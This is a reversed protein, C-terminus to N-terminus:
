RWAAIEINGYDIAEVARLLPGLDTKKAYRTYSEREGRQHGVLAATHAEPIGASWLKTIVSHRIGHFTQGNDKVGISMLYKAFDKSVQHGYKGKYPRVDEFLKLGHRSEAFKVLGADILAQHVPVIRKANNNKLRKDGRDNVDICWTGGINVIDDGDLQAVESQRMGGFCALLPIWFSSPAEPSRPLNEIIKKIDADSIAQREADDSKEIKLVARKFPHSDVMGNNVAWNFVTAVEILRMNVTKVSLLESAPRATQIIDHIARDRYQTRNVCKPIRQLVDRYRQKDEVTYQDLPKDTVIELFRLLNKEIGKSIERGRLDTIENIYLRILERGTIRQSSQSPIQQVSVVPLDEPIETAPTKAAFVKSWLEKEKERATTPVLAATVDQVLSPAISNGGDILEARFSNIRISEFVSEAAAVYQRCRRLAVSENKTRLSKKLETRNFVPQLDAPVRMRFYFISELSKFIYSPVRM